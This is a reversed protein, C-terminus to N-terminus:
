SKTPKPSAFRIAMPESSQELTFRDRWPNSDAWSPLAPRTFTTWAEADVPLYDEDRLHKGRPLGRYKEILAPRAAHAVHVAYHSVMMLFPRKGGYKRIFEVSRKRLEPMRRPNDPPLPERSKLDLYDGHFNGNEAQGDLEDHVDYGITEMRENGMGKGFHATIHDSDAAKLVDALSVQDAWELKRELALVDHM